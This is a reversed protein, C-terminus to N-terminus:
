APIDVPPVVEDGSDDLPVVEGPDEAQIDTDDPENNPAPPPM